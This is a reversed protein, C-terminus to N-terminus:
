TEPQGLAKRIRRNEDRLRDNDETIHTMRLNLVELTAQCRSYEAATARQEALVKDLQVIALDARGAQKTAEARCGALNERYEARDSTITKIWYGVTIMVAGIFGAPGVLSPVDVAGSVVSNM